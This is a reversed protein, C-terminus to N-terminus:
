TSQGSVVEGEQVEKLEGSNMTRERYIQNKNDM